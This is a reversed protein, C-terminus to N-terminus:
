RLISLGDATLAEPEVGEAALLALTRSFAAYVPVYETLTSYRDGNEQRKCGIDIRLVPM